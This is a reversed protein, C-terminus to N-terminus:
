FAHLHNIASVGSLSQSWVAIPKGGTVDATDRIALYNQYFTPTKLFIQSAEAEPMFRLHYAHIDFPLVITLHNGLIIHQHHGLQCTTEERSFYSTQQCILGKVAWQGWVPDSGIRLELIMTIVNLHSAAAVRCAGATVSGEVAPTLRWGVNNDWTPSVNVRVHKWQFM